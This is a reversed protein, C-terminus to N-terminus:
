RQELMPDILGRVIGEATEGLKRNHDRAYRRIWQFAVTMSVNHREAVIGKAQEIAVRSTLAYQLQDALVASRQVARGQLIGISAVDAFAQALCRREEDITRGESEFLNLSGITQARLRMPLAAAATFGADLAGATFSPWRQADASIDDSSVTAGLRVCDFGPGENTQVQLVELLRTEESSSAVAQLHGQDGELLLGAAVVGLLDVAADMLRSFLELLDFDAGLASALLVFAEAVAVERGGDFGRARTM